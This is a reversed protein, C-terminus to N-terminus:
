RLRRSKLETEIIDIGVDTVQRIKAIADDTAREIGIKSAILRRYDADTLSKMHSLIRLLQPTKMAGYKKRLPDMLSRGHKAELPNMDRAMM